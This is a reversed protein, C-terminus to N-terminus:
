NFGLYDWFKITVKIKWTHFNHCMGGISDPYRYSILLFIPVHLSVNKPIFVENLLWWWDDMWEHLTFEYQENLKHRMVSYAWKSVTTSNNWLHKREGDAHLKQQWSNEKTHSKIAPIRDVNWYYVNPWIAVLLWNDITQCVDYDRSYSMTFGSRISYVIFSWVDYWLLIGAFFTWM